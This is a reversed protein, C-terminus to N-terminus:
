IKKLLSNHIWGVKDKLTSPSVVYVNFWGGNASIYEVKTDKKLTGLINEKTTNNPTSRFNAGDTTVKFIEGTDDARGLIQAGFSAMPFAPGPDSKRFPAIDEHGLIDQLKYHNVLLLSVQKLSDLQAQPYNHWAEVRDEHKHQALVVDAPPLVKGAVNLYDNGVKRLRGCNDLEIGISYNNMGVLNAWRSVGAHWLAKNFAGLQAIKGDRGIVLHASAKALPNMLWNVSSQFSVGATYHIILYQATITGGHNPSTLQTVPQDGTESILKHNQIKM